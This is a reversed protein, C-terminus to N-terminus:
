ELDVKDQARIANTAELSMQALQVLTGCVELSGDELGRRVLEEYRSAEREDHQSELVQGLSFFTGVGIGVLQVALEM